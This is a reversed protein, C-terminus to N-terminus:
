KAAKERRYFPLRVVQAVVRHGRIDVELQTGTASASPPVFAMAIPRSLSPSFTGSTIEGIAKDDSLVQNGSRPVRRGSLELGVRTRPPSEGALRDLADRGLFASKELDVAMGLDAEWPTIQESLEHGYLPM